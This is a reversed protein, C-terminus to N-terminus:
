NFITTLHLFKCYLYHWIVINMYQSNLHLVNIQKCHLTRRFFRPGLMVDAMHVNSQCTGGMWAINCVLCVDDAYDRILAWCHHSSALLLALGNSKNLFLVYRCILVYVMRVFTESVFSQKVLIKTNWEKLVFKSPRWVM